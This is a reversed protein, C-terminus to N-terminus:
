GGRGLLLFGLQSVSVGIGALGGHNRDGVLWGCVTGGESDRRDPKWAYREIEQLAVSVLLAIDQSHCLDCSDLGRFLGRIQDWQAVWQQECVDRDIQLQHLVIHRVVSAELTTSHLNLAFHRAHAVRANLHLRKCPGSHRCQRHEVHALCNALVHHNALDLDHLLGSALAPRVPVLLFTSLPLTMADSSLGVNTLKSFVHEKKHSRIRHIRAEGTGPM